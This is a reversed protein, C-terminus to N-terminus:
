FSKISEEGILGFYASELDQDGGGGGRGSILIKLIQFDYKCRLKVVTFPQRPHLPNISLYIM